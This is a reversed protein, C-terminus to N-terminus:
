VTHPDAIPNYTWRRRETSEPPRMAKCRLIHRIEDESPEWVKLVLWAALATLLHPSRM